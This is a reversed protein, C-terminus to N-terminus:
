RKLKAQEECVDERHEKGSPYLLEDMPDRLHAMQQQWTEIM